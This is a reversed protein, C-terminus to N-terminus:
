KFKAVGGCAGRDHNTLVKVVKCETDITFGIIRCYIGFTVYVHYGCISLNM